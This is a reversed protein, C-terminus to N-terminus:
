AVCLSARRSRRDGAELLRDCVDPVADFVRSWSPLVDETFPDALYKRTANRLSAAFVSVAFEESDRNFELGNLMADAYYRDVMEVATQVYRTELADFDDPTFIHGEAALTRLVCRGVEGAMRGLGTSFDEASLAQHKHDYSDALDVQCIRSVNCNRHIESLVGVELGWDGPIRNIRALDARMAFEGALPYRFSDLFRLFGDGPAVSHLARVLPTLFLRTVRGHLCGTVRAYYGKCFDFNLDPSAIPYCLRALLDRNYNKIDCDHVAIVDCSGTALLYGYALWCSRGKGDPGPSVGNRRLTRFLEQIPDSDIWLITVSGALDELFTKAHQYQSFSARGLAVIIHKLYRVKSLENVIGRMAPTEFESYLAPLVLGIAVRDSIKELERELRPQGDPKLRHLTTIAGSQHFDAM